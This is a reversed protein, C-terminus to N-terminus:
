HADLMDVIDDGIDLLRERFGSAAAPGEPGTWRQTLARTDAGTLSPRASHRAM